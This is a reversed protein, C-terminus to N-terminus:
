AGVKKVIHEHRTRIHRQRRDLFFKVYSAKVQLPHNHRCMSMQHTKEVLQPTTQDTVEEEDHWHYDAM